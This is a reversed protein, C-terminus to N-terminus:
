KKNRRNILKRIEDIEHRSVDENKLLHAVLTAASGGFVRKLRNLM